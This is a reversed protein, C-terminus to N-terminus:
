ATYRSHRDLTGPTGSTGPTVGDATLTGTWASWYQYQWFDLCDFHLFDLSMQSCDLADSWCHSVVLGPWSRGLRCAAPESGAAVAPVATVAAESPPPATIKQPQSFRAAFSCELLSCHALM